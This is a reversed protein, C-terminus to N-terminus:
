QDISSLGWLNLIVQKAQEINECKKVNPIVYHGDVTIHLERDDYNEMEDADVLRHIVVHEALEEVLYNPVDIDSSNFVLMKFGGLQDATMITM